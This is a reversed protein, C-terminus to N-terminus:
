GGWSDTDDGVIKVNRSLLIVEGRMDVGNYKAGTSVIDGWHYFKLPNLLTLNGSAIDYSVIQNYDTHQWQTTTPLFAIKDGAKWDLGAEVQALKADQEVTAMLRSKSARQQGYFKALGTIALMKNGGEVQDSFALSPDTPAGYLKVTANGSFPNTENGILLEGAHVFINHAHLTLDLPNTLNNLFTLRGNIVLNGLIATDTDLIINAGPIIEVDEGDVPVKGSPWTAPVSWLNTTNSVPVVVVSPTCNFVCRHGTMKLDTREVKNKGNIVFHFERV